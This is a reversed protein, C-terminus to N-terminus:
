LLPTVAEHPGLSPPCLMIRAPFWWAAVQRLGKRSCVLFLLSLDRLSFPFNKWGTPSLTGPIPGATGKGHRLM